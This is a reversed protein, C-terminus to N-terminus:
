KDVDIEIACILAKAFCLVLVCGGVISTTEDNNKNAVMITFVNVCALLFWFWFESKKNKFM